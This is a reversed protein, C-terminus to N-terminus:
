NKLALIDQVDKDSLTNAGGLIQTYIITKAYEEALELKQYGDEITKGAIIVGHNAMLIADRTKFYVSTNEILEDSSPMGYEALPIGGFYYVNEPMVPTTLDKGASAFATLAPSHVHLVANIDPRLEYYKLHLFKESTARKDSNLINGDYDTLVFDDRTLYGNSSGSVTMIIGCDTRASLNGSYGPSYNKMGMRRGIDILSSMAEDVSYNKM